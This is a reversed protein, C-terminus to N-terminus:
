QGRRHMVPRAVIWSVVITVASLLSTSITPFASRVPFGREGPPLPNPHPPDFHFTKINRAMVVGM